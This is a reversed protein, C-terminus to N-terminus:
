VSLMAGIRVAPWQVGSHEEMLPQAALRRKQARSASIRSRLNQEATLFCKELTMQLSDGERSLVVSMFMWNEM